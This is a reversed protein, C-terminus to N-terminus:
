GAGQSNRKRVIETIRDTATFPNNRVANVYLSNFKSNILSIELHELIWPDKVSNLFGKLSNLINEENPEMNKQKVKAEVKKLLQKLHMGSKGDFLYTEGTHHKYFVFWIDVSKAYTSKMHSDM